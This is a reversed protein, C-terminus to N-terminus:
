LTRDMWGDMNLYKITKKFENKRCKHLLFIEEYGNKRLVETFMQVLQKGFPDSQQTVSQGLGEGDQVVHTGAPHATAVTRVTM